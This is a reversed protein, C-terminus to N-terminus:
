AAIAAEQMRTIARRILRSVHMQSVGMREAIEVQTLDDWFRLRLVDRDREDLVTMLREIVVADEVRGFGKENAIILEAGPAADDDEGSPADLSIGRQARLAQRADLVDEVTVRARAAIQAATAPRGLERELQGAVRNVRLALEQLGRPVRVAWGSDRFHRRLEGTITPAAFTPFEVGRAPDFRDIAKLLGVSAVQVLDELPEGGRYCRWALYRALPLFRAVLAARAAPDRTEHYTGLLRRDHTPHPM